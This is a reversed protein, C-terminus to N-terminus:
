LTTDRASAALEVAPAATANHHDLIPNVEVIEPLLAVRCKAVLEIALHADHDTLRGRVVTGVDPAVDPYLADTDLSIHLVARRGRSSRRAVPRRSAAGTSRLPAPYRRHWAQRILARERPDPERV